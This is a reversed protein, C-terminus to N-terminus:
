GGQYLLNTRAHRNQFKINICSNLTLLLVEPYLEGLVEHSSWSAQCLDLLSTFTVGLLGLVLGHLRFVGLVQVSFTSAQSVLLEIWVAFFSVDLAWM